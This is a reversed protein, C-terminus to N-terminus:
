KFLTKSITSVNDLKGTAVDTAINMLEKDTANLILNNKAAFSKLTAVATRKNGDIFTHNSIIGKFIASGQDLANDYYSAGGHRLHKASTGEKSNCKDKISM